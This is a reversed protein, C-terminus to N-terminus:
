GRSMQFLLRLRQALPLRLEEVENAVTMAAFLDGDIDIASEVYAEAFNLPSPDRLLRTFTAPSHVVVTFAPPEAGLAVVTGEWLRFAFGHELRGFVQRLIRAATAPAM